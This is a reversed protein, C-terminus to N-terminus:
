DLDHNYMGDMTTCGMWPQVDWGHNYMGDMTTCGMWPQQCRRVTSSSLIHVLWNVRIMFLTM